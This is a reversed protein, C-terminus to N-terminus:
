PHVDLTDRLRLVVLLIRFNAQQKWGCAPQGGAYTELLPRAASLAMDTLLKKVALKGLRAAFM